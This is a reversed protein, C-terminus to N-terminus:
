GSCVADTVAKVVRQQDAVALYPHMPLSLVQNAASETNPLANYEALASVAPQRYLPLPYHVAVPIGAQRVCEAVRDRDPVRVTYQGFVSRNGPAVYPVQVFHGHSDVRPALGRNSAAEEFLEDYVRAAAQRSAVEDRFLPLKALLVAAQLTDLRGNMGIREHRYRQTQGHTRLQRLVAALRDDNTFCAGGDGYAGLPKTPFFSTCGITTLGCSNRKGCIAGFSQAADEIVHLGHRAATENIADLDACQGYLSVAVVARTRPTIADELLAPDLNYTREDIDVFVPRAGLLLIPEVTGFFSFPSTIIEDGPGVGLAMLSLTLADTGSSVGICHAVGALRALQQELEEVEPGLIFQGHAYVQEMRHRIQDEILRHPTRLDIFDMRAKGIANAIVGNAYERRSYAYYGAAAYSM